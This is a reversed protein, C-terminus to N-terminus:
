LHTSIPSDPLNCSDLGRGVVIFAQVMVQSDWGGVCHICQFQLEVPLWTGGPRLTDDELYWFFCCQMWEIPLNVTLEVLMLM